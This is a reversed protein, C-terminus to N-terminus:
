LIKDSWLTLVNMGMGIIYTGEYEEGFADSVSAELLIGTYGIFWGKISSFYPFDYQDRDYKYIYRFGNTGLTFIFGDGDFANFGTFLATINSNLFPFSAIPLRLFSRTQEGKIAFGFGNFINLLDFIVGKSAIGPLSQQISYSLLEQELYAFEDDTILGNENLTTIKSQMITFFDLQHNNEIPDFISMFKDLEIQQRRVSEDEFNYITVNIMEAQDHSPIALSQFSSFLIMVFVAIAGLGIKGEKNM